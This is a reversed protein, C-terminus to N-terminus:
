GVFLSYCFSGNKVLIRLLPDTPLEEVKIREKPINLEEQLLSQMAKLMGPPGCIYFISNDLINSNLYKLIM